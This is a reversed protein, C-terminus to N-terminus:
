MSRSVRVTWTFSSSTIRRHRGPAEGVAWVILVAGARWARTSVGSRMANGHSVLAINVDPRAAADEDRHFRYEV